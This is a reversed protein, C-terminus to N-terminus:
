TGRAPLHQCIVGSITKNLSATHFQNYIDSCCIRLSLFRWIKLVKKKTNQCLRRRNGTPMRDPRAQFQGDNQCGSQSLTASYAFNQLVNQIRVVFLFRTGCLNKGPLAVCPRRQLSILFDPLWISSKHVLPLVASLHVCDRSVTDTCFPWSDATFTTLHHKSCGPFRFVTKKGWFSEELKSWITPAWTGTARTNQRSWQAQWFTRSVCHYRQQSETVLFTSFESVLLFVFYKRLSPQLHSGQFCVEARKRKM